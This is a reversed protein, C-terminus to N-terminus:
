ARHPSDTEAERRPRGSSRTHGTPLCRRTSGTASRRTRSGAAAPATLSLGSSSRAIACTGMLATVLLIQAGFKQKASIGKRTKLKRWDDLLGIVAFGGTALILVWVYRNHLNTWLLTSILLAALIVLGGM